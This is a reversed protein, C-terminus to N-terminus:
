GGLMDVISQALQEGLIIKTFLRTNLAGIVSNADVNLSCLAVTEKASRLNEVEVQVVNDENAHIFRGDIDYYHALFRGVAKETVLRKGFRASTALDPPAYLSSINVFAYDLDQWLNQMQLYLESNKYLQKEEPSPLLAPLYLYNAKLGTSESLVRVLENTHYSKFTAKFGGILPCIDGSLSLLDTQEFKDALMGVMSGCGVGVTMNREKKLLEAAMDAFSNARDDFDIIMAARLGFIACLKDQLIQRKSKLENITITVIGVDRAETLLKSVMPRSVGVIDAIENQSKNEEYYMRAVQTLRMIKKESILTM